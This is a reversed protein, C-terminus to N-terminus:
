VISSSYQGIRMCGLIKVLTGKMDKFSVHLAARSTSASVLRRLGSISQETGEDRMLAVIDADPGVQVAAEAFVM